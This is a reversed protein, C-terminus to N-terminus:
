ELEFGEHAIELTEIAVESSKANLTPGTYKMPWANRVVWRVAQNGEDDLLVIAMNRRIQKIKGKVVEKYWNYLDKSGTIGRKLTINSYKVLGPLKRVTIDENGERYEIVNVETTLGDCESFGAVAIGEIEVLFKFNKYPDARQGQPM